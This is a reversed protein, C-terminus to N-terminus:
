NVHIWMKSNALYSISWRIPTRDFSTDCVVMYTARLSQVDAAACILKNKLTNWSAGDWWRTKGGYALAGVCARVFVRVCSCVCVSVRCRSEKPCSGIWMGCNPSAFYFIRNNKKRDALARLCTVFSTVLQVLRPQQWTAGAEGLRSGDCTDGDRASSARVCLRIKFISSNYHMPPLHHLCRGMLMYTFCLCLVFCAFYHVLNSSLTCTTTKNTDFETASSNPTQWSNHISGM